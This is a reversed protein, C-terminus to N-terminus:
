RPKSTECAVHDSLSDKHKQLTLNRQALTDEVDFFGGPYGKHQYCMCSNTFFLFVLKLCVGVARSKVEM